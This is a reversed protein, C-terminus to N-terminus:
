PRKPSSEQFYKREILQVESEPLYAEYWKRKNRFWFLKNRHDRLVRWDHNAQQLVLEKWDWELWFLTVRLSTYNRLDRELSPATTVYNKLGLTNM